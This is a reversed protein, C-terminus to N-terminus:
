PRGPGVEWRLSEAAGVVGNPGSDCLVQGSSEDLRWLAVTEADSDLQRKPPFTGTYRAIKSIRVDAWYGEFGPARGGGLRFNGFKEGPPELATSAVSEGDYFLEIASATQVLAVHHWEGVTIAMSATIPTLGKGAVFVEGRLRDSGDVRLLVDEAGGKLKNLLLYADTTVLYLWGEFTREPGISLTTPWTMLAGLRDLHFRLLKQGVEPCPRDACNCDPGPDPAGGIPAEGAAGALGDMGAESAGMGASAAGSAGGSGGGGADRAVPFLEIHSSAQCAALALALTFWSLRRLGNM